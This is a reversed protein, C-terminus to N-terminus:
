IRAIVGAAGAHSLSVCIQSWWQSSEVAKCRRRASTREKAASDIEGFLKSNPNKICDQVQSGQHQNTHGGEAARFHNQNGKAEKMHPPTNLSNPPRRQHLEAKGKLILIIYYSWCAARCIRFTRKFTASSRRGFLAVSACSVKATPFLHGMFRM